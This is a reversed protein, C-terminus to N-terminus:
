AAETVLGAAFSHALQEIEALWEPSGLASLCGVAAAVEDELAKLAAEAAGQAILAAGLGRVEDDSPPAAGAWAAELRARAQPSRAAAWLIPMSPNGNKLDAFRDKGPEGGALDKCDDALQFAVGLRRGFQGAPDVLDERGAVRAASRGCFAFLAGTKGEAIERWDSLALDARGRASLELCAARAMEAVTEIAETTVERPHPTLLAFASSLLWDGALVAVANGFRANVSPLGRRLTAEDVVDDHLLSAAHILEASAAVEELSRPPAGAATGLLCTLRARVRKGGGELCLARSAANLVSCPDRELAAALRREVAQVFDQVVDM